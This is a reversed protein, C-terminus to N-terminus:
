MVHMTGYIIQVHMIGNKKKQSVDKDFKVDINKINRATHAM